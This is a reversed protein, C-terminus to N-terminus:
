QQTLDYQRRLWDPRDTSIGDVGNVLFEAHKSKNITWFYIILGTNKIRKIYAEDIARVLSIDIGNLNDEMVETLMRNLSPFVINILPIQVLEYLRM